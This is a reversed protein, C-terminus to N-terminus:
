YNQKRISGDVKHIVISGDAKDALDQAFAIAELQTDFYQITKQSGQKRVRWKKYNPNKEDKNLSIHYVDKVKPKVEEVPKEEAKEEFPADKKVEELNPEEVKQEVAKQEAEKELKAKDKKKRWFCM